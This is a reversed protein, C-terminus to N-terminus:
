LLRASYATSRLVTTDRAVPPRARPLRGAALQRIDLRGNQAIRSAILQDCSRYELVRTGSFQVIGCAFGASVAHLRLLLASHLGLRGGHLGLRIQWAM